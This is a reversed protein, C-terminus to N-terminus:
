DQFNRAWIMIDKLENEIYEALGKLMPKELEHSCVLTRMENEEGIYNFEIEDKGWKYLAESVKLFNESKAESITAILYGNAVIKIM